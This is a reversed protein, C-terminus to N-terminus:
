GRWPALAEYMADRAATSEPRLELGLPLACGAKQLADLLPAYDFNTFIKEDRNPHAAMHFHGILPLNPLIQALVDEGMHVQHYVDFLLRVHPDNVERIIAFGEESSTLYYGKHDKVDNLPEVLLTVGAERLLPAMRRLGSVIAAHQEERPAGTDAGVQTILAPCRLKKAWQLARRLNEEYEDHRSADNLIFFDPCFASLRVGHRDLAAALAEEEGKPLTWCEATDFGAARVEGVAEELSKGAYLCPLNLSFRM